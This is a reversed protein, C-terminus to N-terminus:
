RKKLCVNNFLKKENKIRESTPRDDITKLLTHLVPIFFYEIPAM